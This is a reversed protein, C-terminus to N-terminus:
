ILEKPAAPALNNIFREKFYFMYSIIILIINVWKPTKRINDLNLSIILTSATLLTIVLISICEGCVSGKSTKVKPSQLVRDVDKSQKSSEGDENTFFLEKFLCSLLYYFTFISTIWIPIFILTYKFDYLNDLRTNLLMLFIFSNVILSIVMFIEIFSHKDILAPLMFIFYFFGLGINIFLPITILRWNLLILSELKLAFLVIFIIFNLSFLNIIFFSMWSALSAGENYIDTLKLFFNFSINLSLIAIILPLSAYIWSYLARKENLFVFSFFILFLLGSTISILQLSRISNEISTIVPYNSFYIREMQESNSYNSDFSQLQTEIDEKTQNNKFMM